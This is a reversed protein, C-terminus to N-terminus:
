GSKGHNNEVTIRNSELVIPDRPPPGCAVGASALAILGAAALAARRAAFVRVIMVYHRSRGPNPDRGVVDMAAPAEVSPRPGLADRTDQARDVGIDHRQLFDDAGTWAAAPVGLLEAGREAHAPDHRRRALQPAVLEAVRHQAAKRDRLVEFVIQRPFRALWPAYLADVDGELAAARQVDVVNMEAGRNQLPRVLGFPEGGNDRISVDGTRFQDEAVEVLPHAPLRRQDQGFLQVADVQRVVQPAAPRIGADEGDQMQIVDIVVAGDGDDADLERPRPQREDRGVVQRQDRVYADTSREVNETRREENTLKKRSSSRSPRTRSSARSAARQAVPRSRGRKKM